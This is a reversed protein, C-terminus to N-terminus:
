AEKVESLHWVQNKQIEITWLTQRCIGWIWIDAGLSDWRLLRLYSWFYQGFDRYWPLKTSKCSKEVFNEESLSRSSVNDADFWTMFHGYAGKWCSTRDKSWDASIPGWLLQGHHCKCHVGSFWDSGNCAMEQLRSEKCGPVIKCSGRFLSAKPRPYAQCIIIARLQM